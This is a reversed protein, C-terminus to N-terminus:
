SWRLVFWARDKEFQFFYNPGMRKWPSPQGGWLGHPGFTQECWDDVLHWPETTKARGIGHTWDYKSEDVGVVFYEHNSNEEKVKLEM